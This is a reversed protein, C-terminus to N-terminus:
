SKRWAPTIPLRSDSILTCKLFYISIKRVTTNTTQSDYRSFSYTDKLIQDRSKDTVHGQATILQEATDSEAVGHAAAQWAGRDM